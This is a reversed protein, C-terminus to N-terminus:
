LVKVESVQAQLFIFVLNTNIKVIPDMAEETVRVEDHILNSVGEVVALTVARGNLIRCCSQSTGFVEKLRDMGNHFCPYKNL